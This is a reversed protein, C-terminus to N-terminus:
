GPLWGIAEMTVLAILALTSAAIVATDQM